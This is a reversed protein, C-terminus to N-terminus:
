PVRVGYVEWGFSAYLRRTQMADLQETRGNVLGLQEDLLHAREIHDTQM